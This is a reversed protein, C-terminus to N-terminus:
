MTGYNKSRSSKGVKSFVKVKAMVNLGSTIHSKYQVHTNRTVLGEWPVMIKSWTVKVM